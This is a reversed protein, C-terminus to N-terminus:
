LVHVADAIYSSIKLSTCYHYGAETLVHARGQHRFGVLQGFFQKRWLDAAYKLHTLPMDWDDDM